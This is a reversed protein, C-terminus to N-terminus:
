QEEVEPRGHEFPEAAVELEEVAGQVALGQGQAEVPAPATADSGTSETAHAGHQSRLSRVEAPAQAAPTDPDRPPLPDAADVGAEPCRVSGLPGGRPAPGHSHPHLAEVPTANQLVRIDGPIIFSFIKNLVTLLYTWFSYGYKPIKNQIM